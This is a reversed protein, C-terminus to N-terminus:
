SCIEAVECTIMCRSIGGDDSLICYLISCIVGGYAVIGNDVGICVKVELTGPEVDHSGMYVIFGAGAIREKNGVVWEVSEGKTQTDRPIKDVSVITANGSKAPWIFHWGWANVRQEM